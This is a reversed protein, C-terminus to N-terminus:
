NTDFWKTMEMPTQENSNRAMAFYSALTHADNGFRAPTAGLLVLTDLVQDYLSFDNSPIVSIRAAQQLKWHRERLSKAVDLLEAESSNGKWFSELAFKLERDRGMRPFGLNTTQLSTSLSLSQAAM